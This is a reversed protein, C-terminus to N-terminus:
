WEQDATTKLRSARGKLIAIDMVRPVFVDPSYGYGILSRYNDPL